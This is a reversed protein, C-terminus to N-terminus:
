QSQAVANEVAQALHSKSAGPTWERDLTPAPLRFPLESKAAPRDATVAIVGPNDALLFNPNDGSSSGATCGVGQCGEGNQDSNAYAFLFRIYTLVM